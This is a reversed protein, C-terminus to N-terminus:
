YFITNIYNLKTQTYKHKKFKNQKQFLNRSIQMFVLFYQM